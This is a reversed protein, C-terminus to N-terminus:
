LHSLPLDKGMWGATETSSNWGKPSGDGANLVQKEERQLSLHPMIEFISIVFM